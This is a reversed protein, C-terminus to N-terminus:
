GGEGHGPPRTRQATGHQRAHEAEPQQLKTPRNSPVTTATMCSKAHQHHRRRRKPAARSRLLVYTAGAGGDCSRASTYALVWKRWPGQELLDVLQSKLVPGQPSSLGRGHIILVMRLGDRIAKDLFGDVADRADAARLGHLDIHAQISFAGQRLRRVLERPVCCGKGEVYEPTDAVRFGQGTDVLKQLYSRGLADENCPPQEPPCRLASEKKYPADLPRVDKMAKLFLAKEQQPTLPKENSVPIHMAPMDEPAVANERLLRGLHRFPRFTARNRM